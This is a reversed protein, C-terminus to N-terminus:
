SLTGFARILASTPPKVTCVQVRSLRLQQLSDLPVSVVWSIAVSNYMDCSASCVYAFMEHAARSSSRAVERSILYESSESATLVVRVILVQTELRVHINRLRVHIDM